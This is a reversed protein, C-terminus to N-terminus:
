GEELILDRVAVPTQQLGNLGAGGPAGLVTQQARNWAEAQNHGGVQQHQEAGQPDVSALFERRKNAQSREVAIAAGQTTTSSNPTSTAM